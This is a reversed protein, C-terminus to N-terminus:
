QEYGEGPSSILRFALIPKGADGFDGRLKIWCDSKKDSERKPMTFRAPLPSRAMPELSIEWRGPTLTWGDPTHEVAIVGQVPKDSFNYIFLPLDIEKDPEIQREQEVSWPTETVRVTNTAPMVLQMVIPSTKGERYPSVPPKELPLKEAGGPPLIVFLPSSSIYEPIKRQMERGYYDYIGQIPLDSPLPWAIATKGRDPWDAEKEAWVILLDREIGDPNVRFAYVHADPQKEVNLRGLCRAGSLFRGIAALAVYAPRPTMDLRLLGFQIKNPNEFYNGLIFHFHRQCGAFLSTAYSQAIFKAKKHENEPSLDCWPAETEYQIGRDSETVWIPRGCSAEIVPKRLNLYSSPWDYTHINYTDFYPWTENALVIKTHLPTPVGAYANWCVTATPNGAKFGLYAAKQLSCMEDATHGGFDPANAENWPEWAQVRGQFRESMAKCFRYLVRLDEPFRARKAPDDAAWEPTDHFVQLVKLGYKKEFNASTDYTTNEAFRDPEPQMERWRMRDRIWNVGALAALRALQDQKWPKEQAFWANAGDVCIPSDQPVPVTLRTLVATTTWGIRNNTGDLFELRYWGIGLVGLDVVSDNKEETRLKGQKVVTGGDDLLRWTVADASIVPSAHAVVQEGALFVNGPHNEATPLSREITQNDNWLDRNSDQAFVGAAPLCLFVFLIQIYLNRTM